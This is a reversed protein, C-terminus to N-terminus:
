TATSTMLSPIAERQSCRTRLMMPTHSLAALSDALSTRNGAPDYIYQQTRGGPYSVNTLRDLDDYTYTTTGDGDVIQIRNGVADLTYSFSAIISDGSDKYIISILRGASDYSYTATM